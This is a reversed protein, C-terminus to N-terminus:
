YKDNLKKLYSSLCTFSDEFSLSTYGLWQEFNHFMNEVNLSLKTMFRNMEFEFDEEPTTLGLTKKINHGTSSFDLTKRSLTQKIGFGIDKLKLNLKDEFRAECCVAFFCVFAVVIIIKINM